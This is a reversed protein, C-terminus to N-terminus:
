KNQELKFEWENPYNVIYMDALTNNSGFFLRIYWGEDIKYLNWTIGSDEWVIPKGALKVVKDYKMGIKVKSFSSLSCLKMEIEPEKAKVISKKQQLQFARNNPYDIILMSSLVSILDISNFFLRIYWGEDITYLTISYSYISNDIPERVLEVVLEIVEDAAMGIKVKSFDSLSGSKMEMKSKEAKISPDKRPLKFERKNHYDVIYMSALIENSNYSISMFFLRIYWGEDIKYLYWPIDSDKWATPKGLLEVVEDYTMGPKVKSFNSLSCQKIEMEPEKAKAYSLKQQLKFEWENPYNVIYMDFLTNNPGFFLKVYWGEDMKHLAWIIDSGVTETPKGVLKVVEDYTMGIKVKSFNSLSNDEKEPKCTFICFCCIIICFYRMRWM